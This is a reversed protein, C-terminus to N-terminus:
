VCASGAKPPPQGVCHPQLRLEGRRRKKGFAGEAEVVFVGSLAYHYQALQVNATPCGITRGLEAGHKVHGSLMYDHGLLKKAYDLRGDSLAQRIATSSARINEVMVSPTREVVMGRQNQLMAFDGERGAGFRFDDGILLYEPTSAKGCCAASSHKHASTPLLRISACCGRRM